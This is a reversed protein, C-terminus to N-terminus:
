DLLWHYRLRLARELGALAGALSLPTNLWAPLTVPSTFEFWGTASAGLQLVQPAQLLLAVVLVTWSAAALRRSLVPHDRDLDARWREATGPAPELPVETGDPHVLHARKLGFTSWAAEVRAGDDLEFRSRRRQVRVQVGDRYLAVNEDFDFTNVEIDWRHGAHETGFVGRWLWQWGRVPTLERGDGQRERAM